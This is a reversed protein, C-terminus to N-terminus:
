HSHIVALNKLVEFLIVITLIGFGSSAAMISLQSLKFIEFTASLAYLLVIAVFWYSLKIRRYRFMLLTIVTFLAAQLPLWLPNTLFGSNVFWYFAFLLIQIALNKVYPILKKIM